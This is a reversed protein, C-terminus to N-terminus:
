NANADFAIENAPIRFSEGDNVTPHPTELDAVGGYNGGTLADYFGIAVITGWNGGSATGFDLDATYGSNGNSPVGWNVSLAEVRAYGNGSVETGGGGNENTPKVTYLAVFQNTATWNQSGNWAQVGQDGSYNSWGAM